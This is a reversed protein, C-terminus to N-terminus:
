SSANSTIPSIGGIGMLGLQKKTQDMLTHVLGHIYVSSQNFDQQQQSLKAEFAAQRDMTERRSQKTCHRWGRQALQPSIMPPIMSALTPPHLLQNVPNTLHHPFWLYDTFQLLIWQHSSLLPHHHNLAVQHHQRITTTTAGTTYKTALPTAVDQPPTQQQQQQQLQQQQRQQQQKKRRKSRSTGM